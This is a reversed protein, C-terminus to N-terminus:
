IVMIVEADIIRIEGEDLSGDNDTSNGVVIVQQGGYCTNFNVIQEIRSALESVRDPTAFYQNDIHSACTGGAKEGSTHFTSVDAEFDWDYSERCIDGVEYNEDAQLSRVGVAWYNKEIIQRAIETFDAM